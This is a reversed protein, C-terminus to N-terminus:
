KSTSNTKQSGDLLDEICKDLQMDIIKYAKQGIESTVVKKGYYVGGMLLITQKTPIFGTCILIIVLTIVTKTLLKQMRIASKSSEPYEYMDENEVRHIFWIVSSIILLVATTFVIAPIITDAIQLLYILLYEM